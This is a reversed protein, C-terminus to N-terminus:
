RSATNIPFESLHRVREAQLLHRHNHRAIVQLGTGVSFRILPM